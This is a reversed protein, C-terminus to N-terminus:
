NGDIGGRDRVYDTGRKGAPLKPMEGKRVDSSEPPWTRGGEDVDYNSNRSHTLPNKDKRLFSSFFLNGLDNEGSGRLFGRHGLHRATSIDM